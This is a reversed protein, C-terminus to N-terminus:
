NQIWNLGSIYENASMMQGGEFAWYGKNTIELKQSINLIDSNFWSTPFCTLNSPFILCSTYLFQQFIWTVLFFVPVFSLILHNIKFSNRCTYILILPFLIMSIYSLKITVVFSVAILIFYFDINSIKKKFTELFKIIIIMSIYFVPIDIGYASFRNFKILIYFLFLTSLLFTLDFNQKSIDQYVKKLLFSLTFILLILSQSIFKSNVFPLNFASMLNLWTSNWTYPDAINSLGLIIKESNMIITYPLHYYGFDEHPKHGIFTIFALFIAILFTKDFFLKFDFYKFYIIFGLILISLSLYPNVKFFLHFFTIFFALYFLGIIGYLYDCLKNKKFYIKTIKGLGILSIISFFM